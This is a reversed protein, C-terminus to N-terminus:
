IIPLAISVISGGTTDDKKVRDKKDKIDDANGSIRKM